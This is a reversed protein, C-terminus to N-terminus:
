FLDPRLVRLIDLLSGSVFAFTFVGVLVKIKRSNVQEYHWEPAHENATLSVYFDYLLVVSVLAILCVLFIYRFAFADPMQSQAIYAPILAGWMIGVYSALMALATNSFNIGILKVYKNEYDNVPGGLLFKICLFSISISAFIWIWKLAVQEVLLNGFFDPSIELLIFFWALTSILGFSVFPILFSKYRIPHNNLYELRKM